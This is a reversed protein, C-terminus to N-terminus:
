ASGNSSAPRGSVEAAFLRSTLVPLYARLDHGDFTEEYVRQPWKRGVVHLGGPVACNFQRVSPVSSITAVSLAPPVEGLCLAIRDHLRLGLAAHDTHVTSLLGWRRCGLVVMDLPSRLRVVQAWGSPACATNPAVAVLLVAQRVERIVEPVLDSRRLHMSLTSLFQEAVAAGFSFSFLVIRRPLTGARARRVIEHACDSAAPRLVPHIFNPDAALAFEALKRERHDVLPVVVTYVASIGLGAAVKRSTASMSALYRPAIAAFDLLQGRFPEDRIGAQMGWSGAFCLMVEAHDFADRVAVGHQTSVVKAGLPIDALHIYEHGLAHRESAPTAWLYDDIRRRVTHRSVDRLGVGRAATVADRLIRRQSPGYRRASIRAYERVYPLRRTGTARVVALILAAADFALSKAVSCLGARVPLREPM